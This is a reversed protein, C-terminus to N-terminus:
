VLLAAREGRQRKRARVSARDVGVAADREGLVLPRPAVDHADRRDLRIRRRAGAVAHQTRADHELRALRPELRRGRADLAVRDLHRRRRQPTRGDPTSSARALPFEANEGPSWACMVVSASALSSTTWIVLSINWSPRSVAVPPLTDAFDDSPSVM